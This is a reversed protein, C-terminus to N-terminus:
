YGRSSKISPSVLESLSLLKYFDCLLQPSWCPWMRAKRLANDQCKSSTYFLELEKIGSGPKYEMLLPVGSWYEQRSFGLSPPAQYAATWPTVFLRVHSLSKVKVKWKWASSFSIVAWELIRTQLIGPIPSGSPSGGVPDCLTPCSQLSKAAAAKTLCGSMLVRWFKSDESKFLITVMRSETKLEWLCCFLVLFNRYKIKWIEEKMLGWWGTVKWLISSIIKGWFNWLSIQSVPVRPGAWTWLCLWSMLQRGAERWAGRRSKKREGPIALRKRLESSQVQEEPWSCEGPQGGPASKEDDSGHQEWVIREWLGERQFGAPLSGFQVRSAPPFLETGPCMAELSLFHPSRLCTLSLSALFCM